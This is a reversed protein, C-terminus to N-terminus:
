SAVIEVNSIDLAKLATAFPATDAVYIMGPNVLEAIFKLKAFDQSQLSYAVSVPAVPIGATFCALMLLAHEITNGSLIMLPREASFGREILAAALADTIRRAEGYTLKHWGDGAREQLFTRGPQAEASRRFLRALSPEYTGLPAACSLRITGDPDTTRRVHAPAFAIPRHQAAGFVDNMLRKGQRNRTATYRAVRFPFAMVEITVAAMKTMPSSIRDPRVLSLFM